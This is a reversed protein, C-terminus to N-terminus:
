HYSYNSIVLFVIWSITFHMSTNFSMILQTWLLICLHILLKLMWCKCRHIPLCGGLFLQNQISIWLLCICKMISAKQLMDIPQYYAIFTTCYKNWIFILTTLLSLLPFGNMEQWCQSDFERCSAYLARFMWLVEM